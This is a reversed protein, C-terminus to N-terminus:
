EVGWEERTSHSTMARSSSDRPGGALTHVPSLPSPDPIQKHIVSHSPLESWSLLTLTLDSCRVDPSHIMTSLLYNHCPLYVYTKYLQLFGGPRPGHVKPAFRPGVHAQGCEHWPPGHSVGTLEYKTYPTLKYDAEWRPLEVRRVHRQRWWRLIWPLAVEVLNNIIQKGTRYSAGDVTETICRNKKARFSVKTLQSTM